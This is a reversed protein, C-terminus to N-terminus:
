MKVFSDVLGSLSQALARIEPYALRKVMDVQGRIDITSPRNGLASKLPSQSFDILLGIQIDRSQLVKEQGFKV